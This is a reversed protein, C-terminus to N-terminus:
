CIIPNKRIIFHSKVMIKMRKKQLKVLRVQMKRKKDGIRRGFSFWGQNCRTKGELNSLLLFQIRKMKKHMTGYNVKGFKELLV